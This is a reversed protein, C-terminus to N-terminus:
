QVGSIVGVSTCHLRFRVLLPSQRDGGARTSEGGIMRTAQRRCRRHTRQASASIGGRRDCGGVTAEGAVRRHAFAAWAGVHRARIFEPVQDARLHDSFMARSGAVFRSCRVTFGVKYEDRTFANRNRLTHAATFVDPTVIEDLLRQFEADTLSVRNLAEFKERFNRELAARDRIDTRYAYKLAQLKEILEEELLQESSTM